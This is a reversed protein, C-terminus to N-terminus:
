AVKRTPHDREIVEAAAFVDVRHCVNFVKASGLAHISDDRLTHHQECINAITCADAKRGTGGNETHANVSLNTCGPVLCEMLKVSRRREPPGYARLRDRERRARQRRARERERVRARKVQRPTKTKSRKFGGSKLRTKREIRTTRKV